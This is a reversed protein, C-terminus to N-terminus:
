LTCACVRRVNPRSSTADTSPSTYRTRIEEGGGLDLLSCGIGAGNPQTGSGTDLAQGDIAVFALRCNESVGSGSGYYYNTAANYAGGANSCTDTCNAGLSGLRLCFTSERIGGNATDCLSQVTIFANATFTRNFKISYLSANIQSSGELAATAVGTNSMTIVQGTPNSDSATPSTWTMTLDSDGTTNAVDRTSGDSYTITAVAQQNTGLDMTTSTFSIVMLDIEKETVTLAASATIGDRSAIIGTVGLQAPTFRGKTGTTNSVVGAFSYGTSTMDFSWTASTTIDIVTTDSLTAIAKMQKTRGMATSAPGSQPSVVLADVVPDTIQLTFSGSVGDKTADFIVTGKLLAQGAGRTGSINSVTGVTPSRSGWTVQETILASAGDSFYGRAAMSFSRGKPLSSAATEIEIRELVAESISVNTKATKGHLAASVEVTGVNFVSIQGDTPNSNSISALTANSVTWNVSSSIDYHQGDSFLGDASFTLEVGIPVIVNSPSLTISQLVADSTIFNISTSVAGQTATIKTRGAGNSTIDDGSVSAITADASAWTVSDTINFISQNSYTGMAVLPMSSGLPMVLSGGSPLSTGDPKIEISVLQPTQLTAVISEKAVIGDLEAAIEVTGDKLITLKGFETDSFKALTEDSVSWAIEGTIDKRTHNSYVGTARLAMPYEIMSGADNKDVLINKALDEIYIQKLVPDTVVVPAIGTVEKYTARVNTSGAKLSEVLGCSLGEPFQLIGEDDSEWKVIQTLDIRGDYPYIGIAQLAAYMGARMQPEAPSIFISIPAPYENLDSQLGEDDSLNNKTPELTVDKSCGAFVAIM